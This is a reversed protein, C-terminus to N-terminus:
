QLNNKLTELTNHAGEPNYHQVKASFLIAM